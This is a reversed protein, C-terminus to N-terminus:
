RGDTAWLDIPAVGNRNALILDFALSIRLLLPPLNKQVGGPPAPIFSTMAM